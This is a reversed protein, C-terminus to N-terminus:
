ECNRCAETQFGFQAHALDVFLKADVFFDELLLQIFCALSASCWIPLRCADFPVETQLQTQLSPRQCRAGVPIDETQLQPQWVPLPLSDEVPIAVAIYRGVPCLTTWEEIVLSSVERWM